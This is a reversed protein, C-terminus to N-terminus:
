QVGLTVDFEITKYGDKGKRMMEVSVIDGVKYSELTNKLNKNNKIEIDAIKTIVDENQIGANYAPSNIVSETVYIGTPLDMETAIEETVDLAEVGLYVVDQGNSLKELVGKLDSIALASAVNGLTDSKYENAIFGVIEGKLNILFGNGVKSMFINTDILRYTGDVVSATHKISTVTGYSSSYNYELPDGVAILSDGHKVSYSNGLVGVTIGDLAARELENPNISLIAIGTIKDAKKLISGCTTGDLLTVNLDDADSIKNFDTLILIEQDTKSFIFGSTEGEYEYPNNFLDINNKVSTVTVISKNVTSVVHHLQTYLDSYDQIDLIQEDLADQVIDEIQETEVIEETTTEVVNSPEQGTQSETEPVDKPITIPERIEEKKFYEGAYPLVAVFAFCSVVGFIIACMVFRIIRWVIHFKSKPKEIIKETVFKYENEKNPLQNNGEAM